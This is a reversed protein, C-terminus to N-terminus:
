SARRPPNYARRRDRLIDELYVIRHEPVTTRHTVAQMTQHGTGAAWAKLEPAIMNACVVFQSLDIGDVNPEGTPPITIKKPFSTM